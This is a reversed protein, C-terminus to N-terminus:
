ELTEKEIQEIGDIKYEVENRYFTFNPPLYCTTYNPRIGWAPCFRELQM